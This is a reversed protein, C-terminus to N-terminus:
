GLVLAMVHKPDGQQVHRSAALAITRCSQSTAQEVSQPECDTGDCDPDQGLLYGYAIAVESASAASLLKSLESHVGFDVEAQLLLVCALM